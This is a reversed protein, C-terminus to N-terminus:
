ISQQKKVASQSHKAELEEKAEALETQMSAWSDATYDAENLAEAKVIAAELATTDQVPDPKVINEDTAQSSTPQMKM